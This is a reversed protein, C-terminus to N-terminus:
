GHNGAERRTSVRSIDRFTPTAPTLCAMRVGRVGADSDDRAIAQLIALVAIRSIARFSAASVSIWVSLVMTYTM